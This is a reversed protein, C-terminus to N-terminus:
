LAQEEQKTEVLCDDVYGLQAEIKEDAYYVIMALAKAATLINRFVYFRSNELRHLFRLGKEPSLRSFPLFYGMFLPLLNLLDLLGMFGMRLLPHVGSLHTEIQDVTGVQDPDPMGQATGPLALRCFNALFRRRWPFLRKGTLSNLM